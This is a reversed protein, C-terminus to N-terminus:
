GHVERRPSRDLQRFSQGQFLLFVIAMSQITRNFFVRRVSVTHCSALGERMGLSTSALMYSGILEKTISEGQHKDERQAVHKSPMVGLFKLGTQTITGTKDFCAVRVKGALAIQDLEATRVGLKNLRHSSLIAITKQAVSFVSFVYFRFLCFVNMLTIQLAVQLLIPLLPNLFQKVNFIGKLWADPSQIGYGLIVIFGSLVGFILCLLLAFQFHNYLKFHVPTPQLVRRVLEGRASAPGTAVVVAEIVGDKDHGDNADKNEEGKNDRGGGRRGGGGGQFDLRTGACLASKKYNALTLLSSGATPLASKVVPLNEGTLSSEDVSCNGKLLLM